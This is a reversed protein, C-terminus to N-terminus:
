QLKKGSAALQELLWVKLRERVAPAATSRIHGAETTLWLEKPQHAAAFLLESHDPPVITDHLGQLILVPVPSVDAIRKMPSFRSSFFPSLLDPFPWICFHSIKERAIIRHSAFASDIVLAKIHEKAPTAAVLNVAVTGGLSQGFLITRDPDVTPLTLLRRFAAEADRQIGGLTPVGESRGYGRYDFIFVNFGNAVFWLVGNVHTSINEANGHLILISGVPERAKFFWGHLISGDDTTFYVDQHDFQHIFPNNSMERSPFFFVSGCGTLLLLIMFVFSILLLLFARKLTGGKTVM